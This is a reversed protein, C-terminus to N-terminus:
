LEIIKTEGTSLMVEKSYLTQGNRTVEVKHRGPTTTISQKATQKINRRTKHAIDKVTSTTFSQGDINVDIDYASSASFCVAAKDEIGSSVSYSGVGCATFFSTMILCTIAIILKKM